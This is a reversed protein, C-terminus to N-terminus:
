SQRGALRRREELVDLWAQAAEDSGQPWTLRTFDARQDTWLDTVALWHRPRRGQAREYLAARREAALSPDGAVAAAFVAVASPGLADDLYGADTFITQADRLLREVEDGPATGVLATARSMLCQAIGPALRLDRNLREAGELTTMAAGPERWCTALGIHRTALALLLPSSEAVAVQRSADFDIVARSLQGASWHIVGLLEHLRYAFEPDDGPAGVDRALDLAAVLDGDRALSHALAIRAEISLRDDGTAAIERFLPAPEGDHVDRTEGLYYLALRRLDGHVHGSELASSLLRDAAALDGIQREMLGDLIALLQRGRDNLLVEPQDRAADITPWAGHLQVQMIVDALVGVDADTTVYLGVLQWFALSQTRRDKWVRSEPDQLNRAWHTVLRAEVARWEDESWPHTTAADQLRVSARLLEHLTYVGEDADVVFSRRLFHDINAARMGPLAGRLTERDFAGLLGAARLLDSEDADLDEMLRLVIEPIGRAFDEAAPTRGSGAISRFHNTAVDLFLPIGDSMTAITSRLEDPIAAAGEGDLLTEALHQECDDVSLPGLRHQDGDDVAALGPWDSPGAFGMSATRAQSAWDLRNRSTVVFRLMPLYFVAHAVADELDGRRARRQPGAVHEFADLIVVIEPALRLRSLDWGLLLPLHLRLEDLDEEEAAATFFPCDRELTRVSRANRIREWTLVAVRGAGGVLLGASNVLEKTFDSLNSALAERDVVGGLFSQGRVFEVMSVGPHRRAWYLALCTDFAPLHTAVTSLGARLALLFLEPDRASPESFDVRVVGARVKGRDMERFRRELEGSLRTKGIGGQGYFSLVNRRPAQLDLVLDQSRAALDTLREHMALFAALEDHRDTFIRQASLAVGHRRRQVADGIGV